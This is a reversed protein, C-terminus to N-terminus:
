SRPTRWMLYPRPLAPFKNGNPATYSGNLEEMLTPLFLARGKSIDGGIVALGDILALPQALADGVVEGPRRHAELAAGQYPNKEDRAIQEIVKPDPASQIPIGAQQAYVRRVARSCAGEEANMKTALKNRLLWIEGAISNDGIFLEGARVIGGGFGTGLTFGLLNKYRKPNGAKALLENVHPLFGAIAEGYAFLDGDNNIFVPIKFKDELMTGLAVGGNFFPHQRIQGHHIGHQRELQLGADQNGVVDGKQCVAPARV